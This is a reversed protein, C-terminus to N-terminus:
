FDKKNALKENIPLFLAIKHQKQEMKVSNSLFNDIELFLEVSQGYYSLSRVFFEVRQLGLAEILRWLIAWYFFGPNCIEVLKLCKQVLFQPVL